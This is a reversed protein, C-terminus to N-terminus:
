EEDEDDDSDPLNARPDKGRATNTTSEVDSDLGEEIKQLQRNKQKEAKEERSMKIREKDMASIILPFKSEKGKIGSLYSSTTDEWEAAAFNGSPRFFGTKWM